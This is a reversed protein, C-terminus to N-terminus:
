IHIYFFDTNEINIHYELASIRSYYYYYTYLACYSSYLTRHKHIYTYYTHASTHRTPLSREQAAHKCKGCLIYRPSPLLLLFPPPHQQQLFPRAHSIRRECYMARRYDAVAALECAPTVSARPVDHMPQQPPSARLVRVDYYYITIFYITGINNIYEQLARVVFAAKHTFSLRDFCM